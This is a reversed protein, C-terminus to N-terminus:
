KQKSSSGFGVAQVAAPALAIATDIPYNIAGHSAGPDIGAIHLLALGAAGAAAGVVFRGLKRSITDHNAEPSPNHNSPDFM